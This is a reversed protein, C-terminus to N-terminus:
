VKYKKHALRFACYKIVHGKASFLNEYYTKIKQAKEILINGSAEVQYLDPCNIVLELQHKELQEMTYAYFSDNDTKLHILADPKCISTYRNLFLEHTLRKRTRSNQMQPDPFTIWLEDVENEGFAHDIFEIYTRLFGVNEINENLAKKAGFWIRAGKIDTGIYNKQADDAAMGVSYEGRGCGLELVIPHNNKFFDIKWKGKLEFRNESITEFSPQIVNKLIKNEEFRALKNKM